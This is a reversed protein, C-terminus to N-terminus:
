GIISFLLSHSLSFLIPFLCFDDLGSRQFDTFNKLKNFNIGLEGLVGSCDTCFSLVYIAAPPALKAEFYPSKKKIMKFLACLFLVNKM